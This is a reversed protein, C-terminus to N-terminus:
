KGRLIWTIFCNTNKHVCYRKSAQWRFTRTFPNCILSCMDSLSWTSCWTIMVNWHCPVHYKSYNCNLLQLFTWLLTYYLTCKPLHINYIGWNEYLIEVTYMNGGYKFVSEWLKSLFLLHSCDFEVHTLVVLRPFRGKPRL